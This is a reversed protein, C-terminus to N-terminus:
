VQTEIETNKEDEFQAILEVISHPSNGQDADPKNDAENKAIETEVTEINRDEFQAILDTISEIGFQGKVENRQVAKGHLRDMVDKYFRYDGKRAYLLANSVMELELEDPDLNNAKALKSLADRYLTSYNKQGMPRGSPNGSQGQKWAPRLNALRKDTNKETNKNM